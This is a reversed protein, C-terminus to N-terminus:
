VACKRSESSVGGASLVKADVPDEPKLGGVECLVRRVDVGDYREHFAADGPDAAGKEDV